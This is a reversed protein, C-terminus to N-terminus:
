LVTARGEYVLGRAGDLTVVEGDTLTRLAGVADIVAVRGLARAQVAAFSGEGGEEVVWAAARRMAPLWDERLGAAVIIDGEAVKEAAEGASRCVRAIGTASAPLLGVGRVLVRGLTHVKILNTSGSTGPPAGATIVIVSGADVLGSQRAAVTARLFMEDTTAAEGARVPYVGWTLSQQRAVKENSTVAIIPVPPRHRAVMRATYGSTTSTVIAGAGLRAAITVTALSVAATIGHVAPGPEGARGPGGLPGGAPGGLPGGLPGGARFVPARRQDAGAEGGGAPAPAGSLGLAREAREVIRAMTAVAEVPYRGTATEASLMVADTGDFIANAVDSAEARTPRPHEVMSELMQTATIVPKGAAVSRAILEKQIIPVDEAPVEVGLDGRAVMLADAAEIIAELNALAEQSEIKAIVMQQGGRSRLFRRVDQIDEARRVFSAAVFDADASVALQLDAEDKPSLYPVDFCRGPLNIKKRDGLRGGVKVRCVVEGGSAGPRGDPTGPRAGPSVNVVELALNGDDLLITDGPRVLDPFGGYDVSVRDASGPVQATTITFTQGPELTVGGGPFTGIRIEPGRLDFLVGIRRATRPDGRDLVRDVAKRLAELRARHEAASGHSLNFRAVDMGAEIMRALVDPDQSAPGLTAVIKTRRLPGPRGM